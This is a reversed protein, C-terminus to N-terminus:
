SNPPRYNRPGKPMRSTYFPKPPPGWANSARSGEKLGLVSALWAFAALYLGWFWLPDVYPVQGYVLSAKLVVVAGVYPWWPLLGVGLDRARRLSVRYQVWLVLTLITAVIAVVLAVWLWPAMPAVARRVAGLLTREVYFGIAVSSFVTGWWEIRSARLSRAQPMSM